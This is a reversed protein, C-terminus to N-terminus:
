VTDLLRRQASLANLIAPKKAEPWPVAELWDIEEALLQSLVGASRMWLVQNFNLKDYVYKVIKKIPRGPLFSAFADTNWEPGGPTLDSTWLLAALAIRRAVLTQCVPFPADSVRELIYSLYTDTERSAPQQHRDLIESFLRDSIRGIEAFIDSAQKSHFLRAYALKRDVPWDFSARYWGRLTSYLHVRELLYAVSNGSNADDKDVPIDPGEKVFWGDIEGSSDLLEALNLIQRSATFMIIPLDPREEKVHRRFAYSSFDRISYLQERVPELRLDLLVVTSKIRPGASHRDLVFERCQDFVDEPERRDGRQAAPNLEEDWRLLWNRWSDPPTAEGVRIGEWYALWNKALATNRVCVFRAWRDQTGKDTLESYVWEDKLQKTFAPQRFLVRLLVEASGKEFEDDVMLVRTGEPLGDRLHHTLIDLADAVVPYRPAHLGLRSAQFRRVLPSRLKAEVSTEWPYRTGETADLENAAGPIKHAAASRLLSEYGRKIRYAAYFDNALDHYSVRSAQKDTGGAVEVIEPVSVPQIRGAAVGEMFGELRKLAEPLRSFEVGPRVLLLDPKKKLIEELPQWAAVLVPRGRFAEASSWRLASLLEYGLLDQRNSESSALELPLVFADPVDEIQGLSALWASASKWQAREGFAHLAGNRVLCPSDFRYDSQSVPLLTLSMM